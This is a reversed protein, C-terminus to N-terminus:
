DESMEENEDDPRHFMDLEKDSAHEKTMQLIDNVLMLYGFAEIAFEKTREENTLNLVHEHAKSSVGCAVLRLMPNKYWEKNAGMLQIMMKIAEHTSPETMKEDLVKNFKDKDSFINKFNNNPPNKM